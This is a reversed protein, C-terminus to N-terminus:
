PTNQMEIIAVLQGMGIQLKANEQKAMLLSLGSGVLFGLVFIILVTKYNM